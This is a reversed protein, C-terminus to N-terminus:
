PEQQILSFVHSRGSGPEPCLVQRAHRTLLADVAEPSQSMAEHYAWATPLDQATATQTRPVVPSNQVRRVFLSFCCLVLLCATVGIALARAYDRHMIRRNGRLQAVGFDHRKRPTTADRRIGSLIRQSLGDPLKESVIGEVVQRLEPSLEDFPSEDTRDAQQDRM